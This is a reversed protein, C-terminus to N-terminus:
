PRTKATDLTLKQGLTAFEVIALGDNMQNSVVGLANCQMISIITLHVLINTKRSIIM